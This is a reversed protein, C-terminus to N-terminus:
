GPLKGSLMGKMKKDFFLVSQADEALPTKLDEIHAVDWLKDGFRALVHGHLNRCKVYCDWKFSEVDKDSGNEWEEPDMMHLHAADVHIDRSELMEMTKDFTDWPRATIIHVPVRRRISKYMRVMLEFGGRAQESGNVLTDDIDFIVCGKRGALIQYELWMLAHNAVVRRQQTKTGRIYAFPFNKTVIDM